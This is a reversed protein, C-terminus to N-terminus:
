MWSKSHFLLNGQIKKSSGCRQFYAWLPYKVDTPPRGIKDIMESSLWNYAFKWQENVWIESNNLKFSFGEIVQKTSSNIFGSTQLQKWFKLSQITWLTM